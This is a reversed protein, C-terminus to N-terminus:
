NSRHPIKICPIDCSWNNGYYYDIYLTPLRKATPEMKFRTFIGKEQYRGKIGKTTYHYCIPKSIPKGQPNNRISVIDRIRSESIFDLYEEQFNIEGPIWIDQAVYATCTENLTFLGVNEIMHNTSQKDNDCTISVKEGM